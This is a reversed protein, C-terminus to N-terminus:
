QYEASYGKLKGIPALIKYTINQVSWPPKTVRIENKYALLIISMHFLNPIGKENLKGDRALAFLTEFFNMIKLAPRFEQIYHVDTDGANWFHHRVNPPISVVEGPKAIHENGDISFNCNGSIIEFKNEQFPHIHEPEKVSTPPSICDIQLLEGKTEAGTKLFRMTQGTRSNTIIDGQKIM